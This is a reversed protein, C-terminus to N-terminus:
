RLLFVLSVVVSLIVVGAALLVLLNDALIGVALSVVIAFAGLALLPLTAETAQRQLREVPTPDDPPPTPRSLSEDVDVPAPRGVSPEITVEVYETEAGYGTVVKMRGTTPEDVDATDIEVLRTSGADVYHNSADLHAARSLDDDLHLHVHVAEGHNDLSVTFRGTTSFTSPADIEHLRSGNLDIPLSAPM